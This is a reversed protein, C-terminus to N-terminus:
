TYDTNATIHNTVIDLSLIAFLIIAGLFAIRYNKYIFFGLVIGGVAISSNIIIAELGNFKVGYFWIEANLIVPLLFLPYFIWHLIAIILNFKKM